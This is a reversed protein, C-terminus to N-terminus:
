PADRMAPHMPHDHRAFPGSWIDLHGGLSPVGRVASVGDVPPRLVLVCLDSRQFAADGRGNRQVLNIETSCTELVELEYGGAGDNSDFLNPLVGRARVEAWEPRQRPIYRYTVTHSPIHRHTM